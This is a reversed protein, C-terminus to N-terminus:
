SAGAIIEEAVALTSPTIPLQRMEEITYWGAYDADDSAQLAGQVKLARFIELRYRKGGEGEIAMERLLAVSDAVLGTEERLERKIADEAAEGPEVRGGPFAFLGQSPPRGRRVLLFRGGHLVVLSVAHIDPEDTM